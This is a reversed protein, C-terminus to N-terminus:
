APFPVVADRGTIRRALSELTLRDSDIGTHSRADTRSDAPGDLRPSWIAEALPGAFLAALQADARVDEELGLIPTDEQEELVRRILYLLSKHYFTIGLARCVDDLARQRGLAFQALSGIRDGLLPQLQEKFDRVPLSPDLLALSDFDAVGEEFAARLFGSHFVAGASHGVAHLRVSGPSKRLFDALRRATYRAGGEDDSGNRREVSRAASAKIDAWVAPGGARRAVWEVFADALDEVPPLAAPFLADQPGPAGPLAPQGEDLSPRGAVQLRVMSRLPLFGYRQSGRRIRAALVELLGTEWVFYVPYIGNSLWWPVQRSAAELGTREDVLGGHAWFMVPVPETRGHIFRPLHEDFIRDVDAPTTSALGGPVLRGNSLNVLHPRLGEFGGAPESV